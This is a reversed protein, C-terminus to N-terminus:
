TAFPRYLRFAAAVAVLASWAVIQVRTRPSVRAFWERLRRRARRMRRRVNIHGELAHLSVLVVSRYWDRLVNGPTRGSRRARVLVILVGIILLLTAASFINLLTLLQGAITLAVMAAASCWWFWEMRDLEAPRRRALAPVAVFLFLLAATIRLVADIGLLAYM